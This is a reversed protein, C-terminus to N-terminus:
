VTERLIIQTESFFRTKCCRILPYIKCTFLKQFCFVSGFTFKQYWSNMEENMWQLLSLQQSCMVPPTIICKYSHTMISAERERERQTHTHTHTHSILDSYLCFIVNHILGWYLQHRTAYFVCWPGEPLLTVCNWMQPDMIDNLLIPCWIHCWWGKLWLLLVVSLASIGM